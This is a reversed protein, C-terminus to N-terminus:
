NGCRASESKKASLEAWATERDAYLRDAAQRQAAEERYLTVLQQALGLFAVLAALTAKDLKV